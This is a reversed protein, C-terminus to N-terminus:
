ESEVETFQDADVNLEVVELICVQPISLANLTSGVQTIGACLVLTDESEARVIGVSEVEQDPIGVAVWDQIDAPSHWGSKGTSDVWKVYVVRMKSRRIISYTQKGFTKGSQGYVDQQTM